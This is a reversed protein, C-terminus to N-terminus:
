KSNLLQRLQKFLESKQQMIKEMDLYSIFKECYSGKIYIKNAKRFLDQMKRNGDNGSIKPPKKIKLFKCLEETCLLFWDELMRKAPIQNFSAINLMKVSKEVKKWDVPPNEAFEFADTDYCCFVHFIGDPYKPFIELQLKAPIKRSYKNIGQLNIIKVIPAHIIKDKKKIFTILETYFADETDGEVFLVIITKAQKPSKM